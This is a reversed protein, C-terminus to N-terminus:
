DPKVRAKIKEKDEYMLADASELVKAFNDHESFEVGGYSYSIHFQKDHFKLKKKLLLERNVHMKQATKKIDKEQFVAMFEDGGYRIIDADLKQLHNAVYTLVKDGAVHGYNDNIHKFYNMDVLFLTGSYILREDTNLLEANLWKRNYVKTLSDKYLSGKLREIEERLAQTENITEELLDENKESMAQIAKKASNDLQIVKKTTADDIATMEELKHDLIENSKLEEDDISINNKSALSKFISEYLSPPVVDLNNIEAKTEDSLFKYSNISM